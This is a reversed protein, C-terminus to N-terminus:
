RTLFGRLGGAHCLDESGSLMVELYQHRQLRRGMAKEVDARVIGIACALGRERGRLGLLARVEHQVFPVEHRAVVDLDVQDIVGGAILEPDVSGIAVTNAQCAHRRPSRLGSARRRSGSQLWPM